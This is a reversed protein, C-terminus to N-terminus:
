ASRVMGVRKVQHAGAHVGDLAVLASAAGPVKEISRANSPRLRRTANARWNSTDTANAGEARWEAFSRVRSPPLNRLVRVESRRENQTYGIAAMASFGASGDALFQRVPSERQARLLPARGPRGKKLLTQPVVAIANRQRIWRLFGKWWFRGILRFRRLRRVLRLWGFGGVLGVKWVFGKRWLRWVLGFWWILRFRWGFRTRGFRGVIGVRRLRGLVRIRWVFRTRRLWGVLGKRRLWGLRLRAILWCRWVLRLRWVLWLRWVRIERWCRWSIRRFRRIIRRIIRWFWRIIRWFRWGFQDKSGGHHGGRLYIQFTLSFTPM